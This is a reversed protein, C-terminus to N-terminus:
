IIEIKRVVVREEYPKIVDAPRRITACTTSNGTTDASPGSWTVPPTRASSNIPMVSFVSGIRPSRTIAAIVMGDASSEPSLVTSGVGRANPVRLPTTLRQFRSDGVVMSEHLTMSKFSSSSTRAAASARSSSRSTNTDVSEERSVNSAFFTRGCPRVAPPMAPM